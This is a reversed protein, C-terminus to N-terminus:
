LHFNPRYDFNQQVQDKFPRLPKRSLSMTNVINNPFIQITNNFQEVNRNFINIAAGVNANQDTIEQMVQQYIESAKLEPYAEIQVHIGQLLQATQQEIDELQRVNQADHPLNLINQRLATIQSLTGQEFQSYRGILPELDDLIKVKQREFSTVDAWARKTANEHKVIKNRIYFFGLFLLIIIALFIYM